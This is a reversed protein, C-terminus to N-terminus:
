ELPIDGPDEPPEAGAPPRPTPFSVGDVEYEAHGCEPCTTGSDLGQLDYGCRDCSRPGGGVHSRDEEPVWEAGRALQARKAAIRASREALREHIRRSWVGYSALDYLGLTVIATITFMPILLISLVIVPFAGAKVFGPDEVTPVPLTMTLLGAPVIFWLAAILRKSSVRLEMDRTMRVFELVIIVLGSFAFLDFIGGVFSGFGAHVVNEFVAWALLVSLPWLAQTACAGVRLLRWHRSGGDLSGPIGLWSGAAWLASILTMGVAFGLHSVDGGYLSILSFLGFSGAAVLLLGTGLRWQGSLIVNDPMLLSSHQGPRINAPAYERSCEPCRGSLPHGSLNYGCGACLEPRVPAERSGTSTFASPPDVLVGQSPRGHSDMEEEDDSETSPSYGCEPCESGPALGRLNYDCEPCSQDYAREPGDQGSLFHPDISM